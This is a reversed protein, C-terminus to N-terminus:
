AVILVQYSNSSTVETVVGVACVKKDKVVEVMTEVQPTTPTMVNLVAGIPPEQKVFVQLQSM